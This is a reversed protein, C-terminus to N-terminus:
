APRMRSPSSGDSTGTTCGVRKWNTILRLVAFNSPSSIGCLTSAWASSTISHLAALEDRKEAARHGCRDETRLGRARLLGPGNDANEAARCGLLIREQDGREAFAQGFSAINLALVDCDFIAPGIVLIVPELRHGRLQDFAPHGTTARACCAISGRCRLRRRSSAAAHATRAGAAGSSATLRPNRKPSRSQKTSSLGWAPSRARFSSM